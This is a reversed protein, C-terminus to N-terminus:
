VSVLIWMAFYPAGAFAVVSTLLFSLLHKQPPTKNKKETKKHKQTKSTIKM